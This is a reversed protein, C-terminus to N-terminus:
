QEDQPKAFAPAAAGAFVSNARITAFRWAGDTDKVCDFTFDGLGSPAESPLPWKGFGAYVVITTRLTARAPTEVTLRFNSTLHRTTREREIDQRERNEFFESIAPKGDIRMSGLALIAGDAFFSGFSDTTAGELRDVRAWYESVRSQLTLLLVTDESRLEAMQEGM